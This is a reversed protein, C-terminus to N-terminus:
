FKTFRMWTHLYTFAFFINLFLNFLFQKIYGIINVVIEQFFIVYMYFFCFIWLRLVVVFFGGWLWRNLFWTNSEFLLLYFVNFKSVLEACASHMGFVSLLHIRLLCYCSKFHILNCIISYFTLFLLVYLMMLFIYNTCIYM